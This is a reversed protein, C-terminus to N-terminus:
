NKIISEVWIEFFLPSMSPINYVRTNDYGYKASFIIYSNEGVRVGELGKVLGQIFNDKSFLKTIETDQLSFNNEKAIDEKNTVFLKGKGNSFLYGAYYFALSDGIALSDEGVGENVIVRNVGGNRIVRVDQLSKIYNDISEEQKVLMNKRDEKTCSYGLAVIFLLLWIKKM